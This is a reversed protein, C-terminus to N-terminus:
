NRLRSLKLKLKILTDQFINTISVKLIDNFQTRMTTSGYVLRDNENVVLDNALKVLRQNPQSLLTM